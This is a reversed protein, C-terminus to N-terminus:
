TLASGDSSMLGLICTPKDPWSIASNPLLPVYFPYNKILPHRLSPLNQCVPGGQITAVSSPRHMCLQKASHSVPVNSPFPTWLLSCNFWKKHEETMDLIRQPFAPKGWTCSASVTQACVKPVEKPTGEEGWLCELPPLHDKPSDWNFSNPNLFNGPM